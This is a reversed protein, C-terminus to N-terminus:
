LRNWLKLLEDQVTNWSAELFVRSQKNAEILITKTENPYTYSAAVVVGLSCGVLSRRFWRTNQVSREWQRLETGNILRIGTHQCRPSFTSTTVVLGRKTNLRNLQLVQKFKAVDELPVPRDKRYAKCEIYHKFPWRGYVVDIESLNGHHDRMMVNTCVNAKGQKRLLSAVRKELALGKAQSTAM